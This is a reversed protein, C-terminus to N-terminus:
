YKDSFASKLFSGINKQADIEFVIPAESAWNNFVKFIEEIKIDKNGYWNKENIRENDILVNIKRIRNEEKTLFLNFTSQNGDDDEKYFICSAGSSQFIGYKFGM